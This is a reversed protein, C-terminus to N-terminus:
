FVDKSFFVPSGNHGDEGLHKVSINLLLSILFIKIMIYGICNISAYNKISLFRRFLGLKYKQPPLGEGQFFGLHSM